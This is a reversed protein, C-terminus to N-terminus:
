QVGYCRYKGIALCILLFGVVVLMRGEMLVTGADEGEVM